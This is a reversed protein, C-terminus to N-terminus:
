NAIKEEWEDNKKELILSKTRLVMERCDTEWTM